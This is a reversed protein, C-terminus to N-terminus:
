TFTIPPYCLIFSRRASVRHRGEALISSYLGVERPTILLILAAAKNIQGMSEPSKIGPPM